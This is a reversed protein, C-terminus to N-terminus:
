FARGYQVPPLLRDTMGLEKAAHLPFYPDRLFQRAILVMDARESRVIEDALRPTNIMGVAATAIGAARKIAEAFPVQYGPGTEIKAHPVNGGSSCDILDVGEGRLIRAFKVSDDITWGGDIWDSASIRVFLPLSVPLAKRVARVVELPFRTRNAFSGGFEDTRTNSLPSLFENLLYGHAAHVEILRFGASIARRATAVFADRVSNMDERTMARPKSYGEAFPRDDPAIVKWGGEERPLVKGGEWPRRVCATRGGPAILMGGVAGQSEIVRAIRGWPEIQADEWLGADWASIRGRPEVATAETLVLGAGGVARSGLHVLHWDNPYGNESSYQCMPSVGIRNRFTVSRLTLTDFLHPM